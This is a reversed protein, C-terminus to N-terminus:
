ARRVWAGTRSYKLYPRMADQAQQYPFTVALSTIEGVGTGSSATDRSSTRTSTSTREAHFSVEMGDLTVSRLSRKQNVGGTGTISSIASGDTDGFSGPALVVTLSLWKFAAEIGPPIDTGDLFTTAHQQDYPNDEQPIRPWVRNGIVPLVQAQSAATVVNGEKDLYDGDADRRYLGPVGYFLTNHANITDGALTMAAQFGTDPAAATFLVPYRGKAFDYTEQPDAYWNNDPSPVFAM